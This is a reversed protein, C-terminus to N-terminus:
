VFRTTILQGILQIGYVDITSPGSPSRVMLSFKSGAPPYTIVIDSMDITRNSGAGDISKIIGTPVGNVGVSFQYEVGTAGAFNALANIVHNYSGFVTTLDGDIENWAFETVDSGIGIDYVGGPGLSAWTATTAVSVPNDARDAMVAAWAPRLSDLIDVLLNRIISPTVLGEDNDIVVSQIETKLADTTKRTM